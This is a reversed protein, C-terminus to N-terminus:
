ADRERTHWAYGAYVLLAALVGVMDLALDRKDPWRHPVVYQAVETGLAFAGGILLAAACTLWFPVDAREFLTVWLLTAIFFAPVHAWNFLWQWQPGIDIPSLLSAAIAITGVVALVFLKPQRAVVQNAIAITGRIM